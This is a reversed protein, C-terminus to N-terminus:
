HMQYIDWSGGLLGLTGWQAPTEARAGDNLAGRGASAAGAWWRLRLEHEQESGPSPRAQAAGPGQGAQM